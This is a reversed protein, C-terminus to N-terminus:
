KGEGEIVARMIASAEPTLDCEWAELAILAVSQATEVPRAQNQRGYNLLVIESFTKELSFLLANAMAELRAAEKLAHPKDYAPFETEVAEIFADRAADPKTM